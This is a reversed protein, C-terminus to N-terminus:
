VVNQNVTSYNAQCSNATDTKNSHSKKKYINKNRRFIFVFAALFLIFILLIALCGLIILLNYKENSNKEEDYITPKEFRAKNTPGVFIKNELDEKTRYILNQQTSKHFIVENKNSKDKESPRIPQQQQQQRSEDLKVASQDSSNDFLDRFYDEVTDEKNADYYDYSEIDSLNSLNNALKTNKRNFELIEKYDKLIQKYNERLNFQTSTFSNSNRNKNNQADEHLSDYYYDDNPYSDNIKDDANKNEENENIQISSSNVSHENRNTTHKFEIFQKLNHEKETEFTIILNFLLAILWLKAVNKLSRM